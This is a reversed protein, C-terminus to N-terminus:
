RIDGSHDDGKQASRDVSGRIQIMTSVLTAVM